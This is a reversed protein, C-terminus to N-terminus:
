IKYKTIIKGAQLDSLGYAKSNELLLCILTFDDKDSNERVLRALEGSDSHYDFYLEISKTDLVGLDAPRNKAMLIDEYLKKYSGLTVPINEEIVEFSEDDIYNLVVKGGYGIQELYALLTLLNTQCFTDKGFWLHLESYNKQLATQAHMKSKYEEAGVGLEKSRLKIFEDSYIESATDGDMMAECFPVAEGGFKALFYENFCDGNTVNLIGLM